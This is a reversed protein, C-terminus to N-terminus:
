RPPGGRPLDFAQHDNGCRRERCQSRRGGNGRIPQRFQPRTPREWILQAFDDLSFPRSSWLRARASAMPALGNEAEAVRRQVVDAQLAVVADLDALRGALLGAIEALGLGPGRLALIEHIRAFDASARGCCDVCRGSGFPDQTHRGVDCRHALRNYRRVSPAYVFCM